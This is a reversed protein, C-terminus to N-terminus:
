HRVPPDLPLVYDSAPAWRSVEALDVVPDIMRQRLRGNFAVFSDARVEVDAVGRRDFDDRVLHAAALALDPRTQAQLVQWPALVSDPEVRFVDGTRPDTVEFELYGARETLMVRWSLYYGDDNWRVNGGALHHRLPLAVEVVCLVALFVLLGSGVRRREVPGRRDAPADSATAVSRDASTRSRLRRVLTSPWDPPFFISTGCVMVLPFVGIQPFLVYTALHFAVVAAYAVPRTRRWSLWVVITLDFLMGVWSTAVAVAPEALWPGVVPVDTRGQLWLHMPQGHLLWDPNIKALGAFVYVVGLQARLAWVTVVPVTGVIPATPLVALLLAALTVYWYHNLYLAADILEVYVFGAVFLAAALRTRRGAAIVLGLVGLAAVHVYMLPAALPRVWGFGPYTLHHAPALYLSDVWGEAIFRVASFAVVLGFTVRYVNTSGADVATGALDRARALRSRHPPRHPASSADGAAGDVATATPM